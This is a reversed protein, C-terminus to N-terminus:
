GLPCPARDSHRVPGPPGQPPQLAPGTGPRLATSATVTSRVPPPRPFICTGSRNRINPCPIRVAEREAERSDCLCREVRTANESYLAFNIGRGDWTAGLPSPRGPRERRVSRPTGTRQEQTRVGSLRKGRGIVDTRAEM